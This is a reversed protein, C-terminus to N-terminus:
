EARDLRSLFEEYSLNPAFLAKLMEKSAPKRGSSVYSGIYIRQGNGFVDEEAMLNMVLKDNGHTKLADLVVRVTKIPVRVGFKAEISEPAPRGEGFPHFLVTKSSEKDRGLGKLISEFLPPQSREEPTGM